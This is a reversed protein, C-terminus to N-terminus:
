YKINIIDYFEHSPAEKYNGSLENNRKFSERDISRKIKKHIPLKDNFIDSSM